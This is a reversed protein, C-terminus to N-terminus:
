ISIAFVDQVRDEPRCVKLQEPGRVGKKRRGCGVLPGYQAQEISGHPSLREKLVKSMFLPVRDALVQGVAVKRGEM